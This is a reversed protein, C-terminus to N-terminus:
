YHTGCRGSSRLCERQKASSIAEAWDWMCGRPDSGSCSAWDAVVYRVIHMMVFRPDTVLNLTDLKKWTDSNKVILLIKLKSCQQLLRLLIDTDVSKNIAVHSLSPMYTLGKWKEWTSALETIDLHTVQSFAPDAMNLSSLNASLRELRLERFCLLFDRAPHASWLGLDTVNPCSLLMKNIDNIILDGGVLLHKVFFGYYKVDPTYEHM